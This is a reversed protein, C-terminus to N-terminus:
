SESTLASLTTGSTGLGRRMKKFEQNKMRNQNSTSKKKKNWIMSKLGPKRGKVKTGQINQKIETQTAKMQEKMKHGFEILETLMRIVLTKFEADFLNAIEKDSLEKEPTKIHEKVQAM